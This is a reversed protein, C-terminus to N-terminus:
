LTNWYCTLEDRWNQPELKMHIKREGHLSCAWTTQLERMQDGQFYVPRKMINEAIVFM